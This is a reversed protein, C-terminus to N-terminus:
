KLMGIRKRFVHLDDRRLMAAFGSSPQAAATAASASSAATSASAPQLSREMSHKHSQVIQAWTRGDRVVSRIIPERTATGLMYKLVVITGQQFADGELLKGEAFHISHQTHGPTALEVRVIRLNNGPMIRPPRLVRAERDEYFKFKLWEM